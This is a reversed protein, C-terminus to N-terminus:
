KLASKLEVASARKACRSSLMTFGAVFSVILRPGMEHLSTVPSMSRWYTSGCPRATVAYMPIPSLACMRWPLPGAMSPVNTCSASLSIVAPSFPVIPVSTPALRQRKVKSARPTSDLPSEVTLRRVPTIYRQAPKPFHAVRDADGHDPRARDCLHRVEGDQPPKGSDLHRRDAVVIQALRLGEGRPEVDVLREVVDFLHQLVGSGVGDRDARRVVKVLDVDHGGERGARVHQTLTRQRQRQATHLAHELGALLVPLAHHDTHVVPKARVHLRHPPEQGAAVEPHQLRDPAAPVGELRAALDDPPPQPPRLRSAASTTHSFPTDSEISTLQRWMPSASRNQNSRTPVLPEALTCGSRTNLSSCPVM